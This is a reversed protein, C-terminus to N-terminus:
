AITPPAFTDITSSGTLFAPRIRERKKPRGIQGDEGGCTQTHQERRQIRHFQWVGLFGISLAVPIPKGEIKTNKLASSLRSKGKGKTRGQSSVNKDGQEGSSTKGRRPRKSLSELSTLDTAGKTSARKRKGDGADGLTDSHVSPGAHKPTRATNASRRTKGGGPNRNPTPSAPDSTNGAENDEGAILAELQTEDIDSRLFSLKKGISPVGLIGM